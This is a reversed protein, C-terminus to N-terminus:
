LVYKTNGCHICENYRQVMNPLVRKFYSANTVTEFVNIVSSQSIYSKKELHNHKKCNNSYTSDFHLKIKTYYIAM